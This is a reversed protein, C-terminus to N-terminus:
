DTHRIDVGIRQLFQVFIAIPLDSSGLEDISAFVVSLDALGELSQSGDPLFFGLFYKWQIYIQRIFTKNCNQILKGLNYNLFVYYHPFM